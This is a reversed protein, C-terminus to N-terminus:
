CSATVVNFGFARAEDVNFTEDLHMCYVKSRYEQPILECLRILSLHVNDPYDAKCTDQYFYHIDGEILLGLAQSPIMNSDGSYYIHKDGMTLLFGYSKLEEAHEVETLAITLGYYSVFPSSKIVDFVYKDQTVGEM